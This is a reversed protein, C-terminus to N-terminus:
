VCVCDCVCVCVFLCAHMRVHVYVVCLMATQSITVNKIMSLSIM